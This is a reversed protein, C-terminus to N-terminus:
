LFYGVLKDENNGIAWIELKRESNWQFYFEEYDLFQPWEFHINQNRLKLYMSHRSYTERKM